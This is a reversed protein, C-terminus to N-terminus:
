PIARYLHYDKGPIRICNSWFFICKTGLCLAFCLPASRGFFVGGSVSPVFQMLVWVMHIKCCRIDMNNLHSTHLIGCIYWHDHVKCFVCVCSIDWLLPIIVEFYGWNLMIFILPDWPCPCSTLLSPLVFPSHASKTCLVGLGLLCFWCYKVLLERGPKCPFLRKLTQPTGRLVPCSWYKGTCGSASGWLFVPCIPISAVCFHASGRPLFRDIFGGEEARM